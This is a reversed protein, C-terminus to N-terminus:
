CFAGESSELVLRKMLRLGDDLVLLAGPFAGLM